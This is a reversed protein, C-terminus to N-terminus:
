KDDDLLTHDWEAGSTLIQVAKEVKKSPLKSVYTQGLIKGERVFVFSPVARVSLQAALEKGTAGSTEAKVFTFDNAHDNESNMRAMRTYAPNITKCTKCFRASMFLICNKQPVVIESQLGDMDMIDLVYPNKQIARNSGRPSSLPASSSAVEGIDVDDDDDDDLRVQRNRQIADYPAASIMFEKEVDDSDDRVPLGFRTTGSGSSDRPWSMQEWFDSLSWGRIADSKKSCAKKRQKETLIVGNKMLTELTVGINRPPHISQCERSRTLFSVNGVKESYGDAKRPGGFLGDSAVIDQSNTLTSVYNYCKHQSKLMQLTSKGLSLISDGNDDDGSHSRENGITDVLCDFEGLYSAFGVESDGVAPKIMQLKGINNRVNGNGKNNVLYVEMGLSALGEASFCALDGSGLVVAKGRSFSASSDGGGGGINELRPLACHIVSLSAIYTSIADEDSVKKPIVAVSEEYVSSSVQQQSSSGDSNMCQMAVVRRNNEDRGTVVNMYGYKTPPHPDTSYSSSSSLSSSQSNIRQQERLISQVSNWEAGDLVALQPKGVSTLTTTPYAFTATNSTSLARCYLLPRDNQCMWDSYSAFLFICMLWKTKSSQASTTMTWLKFPLSPQTNM